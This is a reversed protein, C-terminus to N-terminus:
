LLGERLRRRRLFPTDSLQTPTKGEADRADQIAQILEILYGMDICLHKGKPVIRVSGDGYIIASHDQKEIRIMM